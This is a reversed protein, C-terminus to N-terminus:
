GDVDEGGNGLVLALHDGLSGRGGQCCALTRPTFSPLGFPARASRPRPLPWAIAPAFALASACMARTTGTISVMRPSPAVLRRPIASSSLRCPMRVARLPRHYAVVTLFRRSRAARQGIASGLHRRTLDAMRSFGAWRHYESFRRIASSAPWLRCPTLTAEAHNMASRGSTVEAAAFGRM